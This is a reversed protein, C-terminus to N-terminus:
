NGGTFAIGLITLIVFGLVTTVTWFIISDIKDLRKHASRTSALAESATRKAKMATDQVDAMTDIKTEVRVVRERIEALIDKDSM